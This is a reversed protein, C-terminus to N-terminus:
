LFKKKGNNDGLLERTLYYRRAPASLWARTLRRRVNLSLALSVAM